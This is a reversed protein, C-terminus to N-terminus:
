HLGPFDDPSIGARIFKQDFIRLFNGDLQYSIKEEGGSAQEKGNVIYKTMNIRLMNDSVKVYEFNMVVEDSNSEDSSTVYTGSSETLNLWADRTQGNLTLEIWYGELKDAQPLPAKINGASEGTPNDKCGALMIALMIGVTFIWKQSTSLVFTSTKM